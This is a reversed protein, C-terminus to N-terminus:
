SSMTGMMSSTVAPSSPKQEASALRLPSDRCISWVAATDPYCDCAFRIASVAFPRPRSYLAQFVLTQNRPQPDLALGTQALLGDLL